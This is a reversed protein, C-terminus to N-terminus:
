INKFNNKKLTELIIEKTYQFAPPHNLFKNILYSSPKFLIKEIIYFWKPVCSEVIILKGNESLAKRSENICKDLNILNTKVDKGILHHILMVSMVADFNKLDNPIDLASGVKLNINKPLSDNSIMYDLDLGIIEKVKDTDYDFSGGHGIDLLKNINNVNQSIEDYLIKYTDINNINEQYKSNNSFFKINKDEISQNNTKKMLILKKIL